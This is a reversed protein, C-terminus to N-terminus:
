SRLTAMFSLPRLEFRRRFENASWETTRPKALADSVAFLRWNPDTEACKVEGNTIPFSPGMSRSGKVEVHRSMSGRTAEFDYGLNDSQVDKVNWKDYKRHFASVAALEVKKNEAATGFGAGGSM